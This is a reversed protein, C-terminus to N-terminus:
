WGPDVAIGLLGREGGSTNVNPVTGVPNTASIAGNVILRVRATAQEIVFLRGDPLFAMGVPQTFGGLALQDAFGTPVTAQAHAQNPSLVAAACLAAPVVSRLAAWRWSTRFPATGPTRVLPM